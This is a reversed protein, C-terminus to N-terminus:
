NENTKIQEESGDGLSFYFTAGKGVVGDADVSGGHRSVIRQVTALGIGTGEFEAPSHLRQFASFLKDRYAIDFGAGNDAVFFMEDGNHDRKGVRIEAADTKSTFKWANGILNELIARVLVEDGFAKLGPEVNVEVNRDPEIQRCRVIISEVMNSLDIQQRKMEARSVRSLKLLDDILAGMHKSAKRVRSLYELAEPDLSEGFDEVLASSFGDIARLPARLDHSVSYSFSELERNVNELERTREKVRRELSENLERIQGEATKRDSVDHFYISLGEPSPFVRIQIWIGLPAFYEEHVVPVQEQLAREYADRFGTSLGDPFEDWMNTGVLEAAGKQLMKAANSNVYVFDYNTDVAVFGDQIREFIQQLETQARRIETVDMMVGAMRPKEGPSDMRRGMSWITRVEGNPRIIRMEIARDGMGATRETLVKTYKRVDDPHIHRVIDALTWASQPPEYGLIEDYRPTRKVMQTSLDVEWAAIEGAELALELHERSRKLHDERLAVQETEERVKRASWWIVFTFGAVNLAGFLAAGFAVDFYGLRLGSLRLWGSVTPILIAAPILTRVLTGAEGEDTIQAAVFGTPQSFLSALSLLLISLATGVAVSRFASMSYLSEANYLYALLSILAIFAAGLASLDPLHLRRTNLCLLLIAFAILGLGTATAPSMQGFYTLRDGRLHTPVLLDDIRLDAGSIQQFGTLLAIFLVVVAAGIAIHRLARRRSRMLLLAIGCFAIGIATFPKMPALGPVFSRLQEIDLAWGFLSTGAILIPTAAAFILFRDARTGKGSDAEGASTTDKPHRRSLNPITTFLGSIPDSRDSLEAENHPLDSRDM